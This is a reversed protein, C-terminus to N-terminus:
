DVSAPKGLAYFRSFTRAFGLGPALVWLSSTIGTDTSGLKPHGSIEGYLCPEPRSGMMWNDIRSTVDLTRPGPFNGARINELDHLLRKLIQIEYDLVPSIVNKDKIIIM